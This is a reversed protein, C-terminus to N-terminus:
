AVEPSAARREERVRVGRRINEALEIFRCNDRSYPGDNDIRDISPRKLRDANCRVWLIALDDLNLSCEINRESYSGRECRQKITALLKQLRLRLPYQDSAFMKLEASERRHADYRRQSEMKAVHAAETKFRGPYHPCPPGQYPKGRM